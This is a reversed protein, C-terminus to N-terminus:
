MVIYCLRRQARDKVHIPTVLFECMVESGAPPHQPPPPASIVLATSFASASCCHMSMASPPNLSSNLKVALNYLVNSLHSYLHLMESADAWSSNIVQDLQCSLM